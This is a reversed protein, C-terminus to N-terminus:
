SRDSTPSISMGAVTQMIALKIPILRPFNMAIILTSHIVCLQANMIGVGSLTHLASEDALDHRGSFNHGLEHAAVMMNKYILKVELLNLLWNEHAPVHHHESLGWVGPRWAIGITRGDLNRGTLLHAVEINTEQRVDLRRIDGNVVRVRAGFQDLLNRAKNSSLSSGVHLVFVRVVFQIGLERQYIGNVLNVLTAQAAPWSM